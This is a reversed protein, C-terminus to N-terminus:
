MFAHMIIYYKANPKSIEMYDNFNNMTLNSVTRWSIVSQLLYHLNVKWKSSIPNKQLAARLQAFSALCFFRSFYGNILPMVQTLNGTPWWCRWAYFVRSRTLFVVELEGFVGSKAQSKEIPCINQGIYQLLPFIRPVNIKAYKACIWCARIWFGAFINATGFHCTLM